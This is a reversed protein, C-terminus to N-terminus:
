DLHLSRVRGLQELDGRGAGGALLYNVPFWIRGRRNSNGGFLGSDAEAPQYRVAQAIGGAWFTYPEREHIESVARVGYDSLFEPEELMRRLLEKM